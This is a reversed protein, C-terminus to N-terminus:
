RVASCVTFALTEGNQPAAGSKRGADNRATSCPNVLLLKRCDDDGARSHTCGPGDQPAAGSQKFNCLQSSSGGHVGFRGGSRDRRLRDAWRGKRKKHRKAAMRDKFFLRLGSCNHGIIVLDSGFIRRRWGRGKLPVSIGPWRGLAKVKVLLILGSACM